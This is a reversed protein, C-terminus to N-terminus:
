EIRLGKLATDEPPFRLNLAKLTDRVLTAIMLNRHTKSNAPVVTWPAWPTSTAGLLDEYARQYDPWQKRVDLDGLSFKWHKDPDDVREQLRERQEDFGIHLMCKLIVTGTEALLREFDNIHAYRQRTQEPTIWQNVVPVLVDEYHSRNFVTIHGAAPMQQHIRWLYDHAREPETPAKWGVTHVGLPSTQSFVGRVTGDKGSTDTGQLVVLLKHRGDAYFLNQLQDIEQALSLLAAQDTSKNGVSFPKDGPNFSALTPGKGNKGKKGNGAPEVQWAQWPSGKAARVAAAPFPLSVDSPSPM